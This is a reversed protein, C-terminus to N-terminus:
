PQWDNVAAIAGDPVDNVGITKLKLVARAGVAGERTVKGPAEILSMSQINGGSIVKLNKLSNNKRVRPIIEVLGSYVSSNFPKQNKAGRDVFPFEETSVLSDNETRCFAVARTKWTNAMQTAVVGIVRAKCFLETDTGIGPIQDVDFFQVYNSNVASRIRKGKASKVNDSLAECVSGDSDCVADLVTVRGQSRITIEAWSDKIVTPVDAWAPVGYIVFVGMLMAFFTKPNLRLM